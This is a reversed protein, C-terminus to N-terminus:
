GYERYRKGAERGGKKSYRSLLSTKKRVRKGRGFSIFKVTVLCAHADESWVPFGVSDETEGVHRQFTSKALVM